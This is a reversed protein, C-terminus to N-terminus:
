QTSGLKNGAIPLTTRHHKFVSDGASVHRNARSAEQGCRSRWEDPTYCRDGVFVRLCVWRCVAEKQETACGSGLCAVAMIIGIRAQAALPFEASSRKSKV